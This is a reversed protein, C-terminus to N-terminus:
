APRSKRSVSTCPLIMRSTTAQAPSSRARRWRRIGPKEQSSPGILYEADPGSDHRGSAFIMKKHIGSARENNLPYRVTVVWERERRAEGPSRDSLRLRRAIRSTTLFILESRLRRRRTVIIRSVAISREFADR